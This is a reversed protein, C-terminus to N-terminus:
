ASDAPVEHLVRNPLRNEATEIADVGHPRVRKRHGVVTGQEGVM